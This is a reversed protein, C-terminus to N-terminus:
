SSSPYVQLDRVGRENQDLFRVLNPPMVGNVAGGHEDADERCRRNREDKRARSGYFGDGHVVSSALLRLHHSTPHHMPIKTRETEERGFVRETRSDPAVDKIATPSRRKM